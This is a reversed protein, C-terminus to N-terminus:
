EVSDQSFVSIQRNPAIRGSEKTFSIGSDKAALDNEVIDVGVFKNKWKKIKEPTKWRGNLDAFKKRFNILSPDLRIEDPLNKWTEFAEDTVESTSIVSHTSFNSVISPRHDFGVAFGLKKKKLDSKETTKM